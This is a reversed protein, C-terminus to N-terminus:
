RAARSEQAQMEKWAAEYSTDGPNGVINPARTGLSRAGEIQAARRRDTSQKQPQGTSQQEAEKLANRFMSVVLNAERPDVVADRNRAFADQIAQPQSEVWPAFSQHAVLDAADPALTLLERVNDQVAAEFAAEDMKAIAAVQDDRDAALRELLNFMPSLDDGYEERSKKYEESDLYAQLSDRDEAQDAVRALHRKIADRDRQYRAVRGDDSQIRQRLKDREEAAAEYAARQEPSANAWIDSQPTTKPDTPPPEDAGHERQPDTPPPNDAGHDEEQGEEASQDQPDPNDPPTPSEGRVAAEEEDRLANWDAEFTDKAPQEM